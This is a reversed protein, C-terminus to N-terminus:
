NFNALCFSTQPILSVRNSGPFRFLEQGPKSMSSALCSGLISSALTVQQVCLKVM